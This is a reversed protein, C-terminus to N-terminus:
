YIRCPPTGGPGWAYSVKPNEISFHGGKRHFRWCLDATVKALRNGILEKGDTGDGEGNGKRRTGGSLRRLSSFSSCPLGFHIYSYEGNDIGQKLRRAVEPRLLDHLPIYVGKSPYAELPTDVPHGAKVLAKSLGACGAFTELCLPETPGSPGSASRDSSFTNLVLLHEFDPSPEVPRRLPAHRSPDDAPNDGSGLWFQCVQKQGLVSWGLCSRLIANLQSSSSRGKAFAGLVVRSDTRTVLRESDLSRSCADRLVLKM